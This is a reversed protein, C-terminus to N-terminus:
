GEEHEAQVAAADRLRGEVHADWEERRTSPRRGLYDANLELVDEVVERDGGVIVDVALSGFLTRLRDRWGVAITTSVFPDPVRRVAIRRGNLRTEVTFRDGTEGHDYTPPISQRM